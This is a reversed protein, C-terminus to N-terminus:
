IRHNDRPRELMNCANANNDQEIEKNSIKQGLPNTKLKKQKADKMEKQRKTRATLYSINLGGGGKLAEIRNKREENRQLLL